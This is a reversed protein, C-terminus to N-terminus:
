FPMPPLEDEGGGDVKAYEYFGQLDSQSFPRLILRDTKIIIGNLKFEVNM